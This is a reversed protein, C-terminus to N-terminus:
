PITMSDFRMCYGERANCDGILTCARPKMPTCMFASKLMEGSLATSLQINHIVNGPLMVVFHNPSQAQMLLVMNADIECENM